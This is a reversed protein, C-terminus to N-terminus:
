GSVRRGCTELRKAVEEGGIASCATFSTLGGGLRCIITEFLAAILERDIFM